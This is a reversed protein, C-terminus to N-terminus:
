VQSNVRIYIISGRMGDRSSLLGLLRMGQFLGPHIYVLSGEENYTRGIDKFTDMHLHFPLCPLNLKTM